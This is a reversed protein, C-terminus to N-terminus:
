RGDGAPNRDRSETTKGPPRDGGSRADTERRRSALPHDAGREVLVRVVGPRPNDVVSLDYGLWRTRDGVVAFRDFREHLLGAVTRAEVDESTLEDDSLGLRDGLVRLLTMGEVHWRGRGLHIVPDRDLVRSARSARPSVLAELVDENTVVGLLDGYESVIGVAVCAPQRLPELANLAPACWPVYMLPRLASVDVHEGAAVHAAAARDPGDEALDVVVQGALFLPVPRGGIMRKGLPRFTSRPRMVDEARMDLLDLVNRFVRADDRDLSAVPGSLAAARDLDDTRLFPEAALKPALVRRIAAAAGRLTPLIPDVVRVATSLPVGVWAAVRRGAVVALSKPVVEGLVIILVLAGVNFLGALVEHGADFLGRATIIGVTFYTLNAVLNWFLVATLLREPDQMLASAAREGRNGDAFSRLEDPALFFLATESGSFFASVSVICLMVVAGPMWLWFTELM